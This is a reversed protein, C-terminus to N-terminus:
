GHDEGWPIGQKCELVWSVGSPYGQRIVCEYGMNEWANKLELLVKEANPEDGHIRFSQSHYIIM